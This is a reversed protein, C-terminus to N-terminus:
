PPNRARRGVPRRAAYRASPPKARTITARRTSAPLWKVHRERQDAQRVVDRRDLQAFPDREIECGRRREGAREAIRDAERGAVAGLEVDVPDVLAGCQRRELLQRTLREVADDVAQVLVRRRQVEEADGGPEVREHRSLALDEALDSGGVLGDLGARESSRTKRWASATPLRTRVSVAIPSLGADTEEAAAASAACTNPSRRPRRTRSIPAPRMPSSAADFRADRPASIAKTAFRVRSVRAHAPAASRRAPVRAPRSRRSPEALDVDDEGRRARGTGHQVSGVHRRPPPRREEEDVDRHRAVEVRRDAPEVATKEVVDVVELRDDRLREGPAACLGFARLLEDRFFGLAEAGPARREVDHGRDGRQPRAGLLDAVGLERLQPRTVSSSRRVSSDTVACIRFLSSCRGVIRM